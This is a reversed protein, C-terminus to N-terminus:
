EGTLLRQGVRRQTRCLWQASLDRYRWQRCQAVGGRALIKQLREESM